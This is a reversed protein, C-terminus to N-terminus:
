RNIEELVLRLTQDRITGAQASGFRQRWTSLPIIMKAMTRHGGGLAWDSVVRKVVDGASRVYGVNRISVIVDSDFVGSCLVWEVDEFQLLFDAIQPILDEREVQGLCSALVGDRKIMTKLATALVPAFRMPLEPKEMRRLLNYNIDPYLSVFADLDADIVERNLFLTDSKIGYLLATALRQGINVAAARLYENMITSAAGYSPRIDLHKAVSDDKLPHHDIIADVRPLVVSSGFHAPQVDLLAIRDFAGLDATTITHVELDLLRMMALNEPRTVRGFALIPTSIKNRGLLVRLALASALGDPDPDPQLLLGIKDGSDLVKRVSQVHHTASLHRLEAAVPRALLEAWSLSLERESVDLIRPADDPDALLLTLIKATPLEELITDRVAQRRSGDKMALVVCITPVHDWQDYFKAAGLNGQVVINSHGNDGCANLLDRQLQSSKGPIWVRIDMEKPPLHSLASVLESDDSVVLYLGNKFDM